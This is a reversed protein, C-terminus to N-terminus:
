FDLVAGMLVSADPKLVRETGGAFDVRTSDAPLWGNLGAQVRLRWAEDPPQLAIRLGAEGMLVASGERSSEENDLSIEGIFEEQRWGASLSAYGSMWRPLFGPRDAFEVGLAAQMARIYKEPNTGAAPKGYRVDGVLRWRRDLGCGFLRCLATRGQVVIQVRPATFGVTVSAAGNLQSELPSEGFGGFLSVRGFAKDADFGQVTEVLIPGFRLGATVYGGEENNAVESQVQDQDYGSRWDGRLGLWADFRGRSLTLNGLVVGDSQGDSTVATAGHLWYGWRWGGPESEDNLWPLPAAHEARLWAAGDTDSTGVYPAAIIRDDVIQHFGNQTRAGGFNDTARFGAGLTLDSASDTTRRTILRYGLSASIQDLRGKPLENAYKDLTLISFDFAGVWRAGLSLAFALQETRFDDVDKGRGLNDNISAIEIVVPDLTPLRPPPVGPIEGALAPMGPLAVIAASLLRGLNLFTSHM